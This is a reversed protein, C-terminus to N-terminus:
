FVNDTWNAINEGSELIKKRAKPLGDGIFNFLNATAVASIADLKLAAMLHNENGAGGAIILPLTVIEKIRELVEHDFGFGTGDKDMSNLYIEGIDLTIVQELFEELYLDLKHNGDNIYVEYNGESKRYDISGVISQSGYKKVLNRILIPNQHLASNLVIKDAGSQFLVEADDMSSIGGGAAVPIFVDDVLKRIMGAFDAMNKEKRSANLVVLEDLAFAIEQFKYNKELWGLNGVSQLRFNRSQNFFGDSYILTFIIRKRLM